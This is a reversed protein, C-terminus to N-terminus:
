HPISATLRRFIARFILPSGHRAYDALKKVRRANKLVIIKM